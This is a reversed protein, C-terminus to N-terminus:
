QFGASRQFISLIWTREGMRKVLIRWLSTFSVMLARLTFVTISRPLPSSYRAAGSLMWFTMPHGTNYVIGPVGVVAFASAIGAMSALGVTVPGFMTTGGFFAQNTTAKKKAWWGILFSAIIMLASFALILTVTGSAM